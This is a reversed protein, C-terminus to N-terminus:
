DGGLLRDIKRFIYQFVTKDAVTIVCMGQMQPLVDYKFPAKLDLSVCFYTRGGQSIQSDKKVEAVLGHNYGYEQAAFGELEVSVETGRKIRNVYRFPIYADAQISRRDVSTVITVARINEPNPILMAAVFLMMLLLAIYVTGGTVLESPVKSIINRVKESRLEINDYETM